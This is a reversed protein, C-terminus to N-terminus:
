PRRIRRPRTGQQSADVPANEGQALRATGPTCPLGSRLDAPNEATDPPSRLDGAARQLGCLGHRRRPRRREDHHATIVHEVAASRVDDTLPDGYLQEADWIAEEADERLQRAERAQEEYWDDMESEGDYDLSYPDAIVGREDSEFTTWSDMDTILKPEM